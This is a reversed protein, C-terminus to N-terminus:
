GHTCSHRFRNLAEEEFDDIRKQLADLQNRLLANQEILENIKTAAEAKLADDAAQERTPEYTVKGVEDYANDYPWEDEDCDEPCDDTHEHYEAKTDTVTYTSRHTIKAIFNDGEIAEQSVGDTDDEHLWDLAQKFTAFTDSIGSAADHALWSDRSETM